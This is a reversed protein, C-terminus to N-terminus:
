PIETSSIDTEFSLSEVYEEFDDQKFLNNLTIESIYDAIAENSIKVERQKSLRYVYPSLYNQYMAILFFVILCFIIMTAVIYTRVSIGEKLPKYLAKNDKM